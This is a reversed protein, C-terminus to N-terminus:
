FIRVSGPALLAWPDSPPDTQNSYAHLLEGLFCDYGDQNLFTDAYENAKQVISLIASPQQAEAWQVQRGLDSFNNATPIYHQYPELDKYWFEELASEQKVVAVPQALLKRLRDACGVGDATLVYRFELAQQEMPLFGRQSTDLQLGREKAWKPPGSKMGHCGTQRSSDCPSYEPVLTMRIDTFPSPSQYRQFLDAREPGSLAGRFVVKGTKSPWASAVASHNSATLTNTPVRYARPILLHNAQLPTSMCHAFVPVGLSGVAGLQEAAALSSYIFALPRRAPLKALVRQLMPALHMVANVTFDDIDAFAKLHLHGEVVQVLVIKSRQSDASSKTFIQEFANVASAFDLQQPPVRLGKLLREVHRLAWGKHGKRHCLGPGDRVPNQKSILSRLYTFSHWGERAHKLAKADGRSITVGLPGSAQKPCSLQLLLGGLGSYLLAFLALLLVLLALRGQSVSRSTRM